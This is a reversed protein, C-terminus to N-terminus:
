NKLDIIQSIALNDTNKGLSEISEFTKHGGFLKFSGIDNIDILDNPNLNLINKLDQIKKSDTAKVVISTISNNSQFLPFVKQQNKSSSNLWDNDWNKDKTSFKAEGFYFKNTNPDKGIFDFRVKIGNIELTVQAVTQTNTLGHIQKFEDFSAGSEFLKAKVVVDKFFARQAWEGWAPYEAAV